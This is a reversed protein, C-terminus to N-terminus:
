RESYNKELWERYKGSRIGKIWATNELYWKVTDRLGKEFSINHDWGLEYNIKSSDIAYRKDHGPRDSVYTILDLVDKQDIGRFDAFVKCLTQVLDINTRENGGGINYTNGTKGAQIIKWVGDNHDEVHVWDRINKGDGYVPLPKREDMNLIMLPILKEPFQFPGYNNSCNSITVPLGYTHYYAM